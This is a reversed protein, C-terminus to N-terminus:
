TNARWLNCLTCPQSTQIHPSNSPFPFAKQLSKTLTQLLRTLDLLSVKKKLYDLTVFCMNWRLVTQVTNRCGGDESGPPPPSKTWFLQVKNGEPDWMPKKKKKKKKLSSNLQLVSYCLTSHIQVEPQEHQLENAYQQLICVYVPVCSSSHNYTRPLSSFSCTENAFSFCTQHISARQWQTNTQANLHQHVSHIWIRKHSQLLRWPQWHINEKKGGWAQANMVGAMDGRGCRGVCLGDWMSHPRPRPCLMGDM